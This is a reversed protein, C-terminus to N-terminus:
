FIIRSVVLHIIIAYACDYATLCRVIIFSVKAKKNVYFRFIFNAIM